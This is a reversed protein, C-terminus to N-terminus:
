VVARRLQSGPRWSALDAAGPDPPSPEDTPVVLMQRRAGLRVLAARTPVPAWGPRDPRPQGGARGGARRASGPRPVLDDGLYSGAPSLDGPWAFGPLAALTTNVGRAYGSEFMGGMWLPVGHPRM